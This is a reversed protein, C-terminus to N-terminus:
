SSPASSPGADALTAEILRQKLDQRRKQYQAETVRGGQYQQELHLWAQYLAAEKQAGAARSAAQSTRRGWQTSRIGILGVALVLVVVLLNGVAQLDNVTGNPDAGLVPLGAVKQNPTVSPLLQLSLTWEDSAPIGERTFVRFTTGQIQTTTTTTFLGQASLASNGEPMYLHAVYVPYFSHITFQVGKQGNLPFSYSVTVTSTQHPLAVGKLTLTQGSLSGAIPTKGDVQVAHAGVPIGIQVTEPVSSTNKVALSDVIDFGQHTTDPLLFMQEQPVQLGTQADAPSGIAVLGLMTLLPALTKVLWMRRSM